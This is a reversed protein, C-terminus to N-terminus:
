RVRVATVTAYLVMRALLGVNNIMICFPLVVHLSINTSPYSLVVAILHEAAGLFAYETTGTM